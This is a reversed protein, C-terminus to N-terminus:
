ARLANLLDAILQHRQEGVLILGVRHRAGHEGRAGIRLDFGLRRRADVPTLPPLRREARMTDARERNRWRPQRVLLVSLSRDDDIRSHREPGTIMLRRAAHDAQQGARQAAAIAYRVEPCPAGNKRDGRHLEAGRM